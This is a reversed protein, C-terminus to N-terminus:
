TSTASIGLAQALDAQSVKKQRRLRKIRGGIQMDAEAVMNEERGANVPKVSIV